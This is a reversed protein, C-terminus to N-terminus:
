ASILRDYRALPRLEVEVDPGRRRDTRLRDLSESTPPTPSTLHKAFSRRTAPASSAPTSPSQASSASAPASSWARRGAFRPDISYHNSDLRLDPQQPVRAVKRLATPPMAEPLPRMKAAEEALRDSPRARTARHFRPDARERFWRDLHNAFSCASEFNSRM